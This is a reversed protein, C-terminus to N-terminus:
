KKWFHPAFLIIVTYIELRGILMCLTLIWKAIGPISAYNDTPGTEGLAPGVNCVASMVSSLATIIDLGLFSLALTCLAVILSFLFLFGWIGGLIESTLPKGDVKVTTVARPHILQYIERGAQKLMLLIRIQKMGGSTSGIMGGPVMLALLLLQAFYSWGEYDATAYGTTTIISVVQFSAFRVSELFSPYEHRWISLTLLLITSVTVTLYFRFEASKAFRSLDGRLAFFYITYNIGALFMFVTAIIEIYASDFAAISANKTSFGGTALITFAHNLADYFSMGGFVFCLIAGITLGAYIYWLAKATDVIRPRLKDVTIEPVEAKFLQMGGTGLFPLIALSFLVIGMGGIWQSLSRWLLIGKPVSEIETLVSAGTTTFGAM